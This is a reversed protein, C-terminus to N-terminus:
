RYALQVYWTRGNQGVASLAGPYRFIGANAFAKANVGDKFDFWENPYVDFLNAASIAVEVRSRLKYSARVDTVWKARVLQDKSPTTRDLQATTGSRQNHVNLGLPGASYDLGLSITQRPQGQEIIGQSSRNFLQANFAALKPPPDDVHTVLTKNYNYGGLFRLVSARSLLVAHTMLVDVGRTRTNINNTFYSGGGIGPMGNETFLRIISPDSVVGTLGIRHDIRIQYFDVTVVPLSTRNAVLGVSQNVSTEARLEPLGLLKAQASTLPFTRSTLFTGVGGVQRYTTSSRAYYEETLSPARFGSSVSGRVALGNLLEIRGALKADSTSGFDSYHEARVASQVLLRHFPRGEGELYVATNSRHASVEDDPRFGALGQAGADAVSDKRPGDLIKVGGNRWSDPDGARIKYRDLRFEAGASVTLPFSGIGVDRSVDLNTTWQQAAVRGAYFSTPSAAGLSANDTNNVHYSISNNGWGSSLDWRWGSRSGRLGVLASADGIGSKIRPLFGDPFIARVTVSDSPRRFFADHAYNNKYSGGGFAYLETTRNLPMAGNLFFSTGKVAADGTYSSVRAPEANRPDGAFYQLRKDPYARNTGARNRYEGTLTLYAGRQTMVGFTGDANFDSGDHFTRGGESSYVQGFTSRMDRREGSKLVINVVGGIADSGYQAAAGDRLVEIHDIASAPIANLDTYSKNAVSPGALLTAEPHRRKGNVLILTHHPALGRLTIPRTANDALPIHPGFISPVLRELQQWTDMVGTNEMMQSSIVDVPVTSETAIREHVRTGVTVVESLQRASPSLKFDIATTAGRTLVVTRSAPAFGVATVRLEARISDITLRYAGDGRTLYSRNGPIVRVTADAVPAGNVANKVTGTIQSEKQASLPLAVSATLALTAATSRILFAIASKV